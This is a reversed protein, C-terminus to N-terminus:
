KWPGERYPVSDDAKWYPAAMAEYIVAETFSDLLDNEADDRVSEGDQTMSTVNVIVDNFWPTVEVIMEIPSRGEIPKFDEGYERTSVSLRIMRTERPDEIIILCSDLSSAPMDTHTEINPPLHEAEINKLVALMREDNVRKENSERGYRHFKADLTNAIAEAVTVMGTVAFKEGFMDNIVKM